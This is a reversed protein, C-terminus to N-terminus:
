IFMWMVLIASLASLWSMTFMGASSSWDFEPEPRGNDGYSVVLAFNQPGKPIAVGTVTVIYSGAPAQKVYIREANNLRDASKYYQDNGFRAQGDPVALTLDLDNVLAKAASTSGPPDSWTLTVRFMRAAESLVVTFTKSTGTTLANANDENSLVSVVISQGGVGSPIVNPLMVRGFGQPIPDSYELRRLQDEDPEVSLSYIGVMPEASNILMARLLAASPEAIPTAGTTSGVKAPYYKRLYERIQVAAAAVAPTAMSTGSKLTLFYGDSGARLGSGCENGALDELALASILRDGPGVVEPKIRGDGAPGMSSFSSLSEPSYIKKPDTDLVHINRKGNVCINCGRLGIYHKETIGRFSISAVCGCTADAGSGTGAACHSDTACPNFDDSQFYRCQANDSAAACGLVNSAFQRGWHFKSNVEQVRATFSKEQAISYEAFGNTSLSTYVSNDDAGTNSSGVTISNKANSMSSLSGFTGANGAAFLILVKRNVNMFADIQLSSDAVYANQVDGWSNSMVFANNQSAFPFLFRDMSDPLSLSGTPCRKGLSYDCSCAVKAGNADEGCTCGGKIDCGIDVFVLKASPALGDGYSVGLETLKVAKGALTSAVHTGHDANVWKDDAFTWYGNIKRHQGAQEATFTTLRSTKFPEKADAFQCTGYDLGSDAIAAIEGDGQLVSAYPSSLADTGTGIIREADRNFFFAPLVREVILVRSLSAVKEADEKSSVRFRLKHTEEDVSIHDAGVLSQLQEAVTSLPLGTSDRAVTVSILYPKDTHLQDLHAAWMPEATFVKLSPTVPIVAQVGPIAKLESESSYVMYADHPLYLATESPLLARHADTVIESFKVLYPQKETSTGLRAIGFDHAAVDFV